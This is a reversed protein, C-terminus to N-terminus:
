GDMRRRMVKFRQFEEFERILKMNELEALGSFGVVIAKSNKDTDETCIVVISTDGPAIGSTGILDIDGLNDRVIDKDVGLDVLADTLRAVLKKRFKPDTQTMETFKEIDM